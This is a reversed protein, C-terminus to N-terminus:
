ETVAQPLLSSHNRTGKCGKVYGFLFDGTAYSDNTTQGGLTDQPLFAKAHGDMFGTMIKNNHRDFGLTAQCYMGGWGLRLNFYGPLADVVEGSDAATLTAEKNRTDGCFITGAANELTDLNPNYLSRWRHCDQCAGYCRAGGIDLDGNVYTNYGPNRTTGTISTLISDTGWGRNCRIAINTWYSAHYFDSGQALFIANLDASPCIYMRPFQGERKGRLDVENKTGGLLPALCGLAWRTNAGTYDVSAVKYDAYNYPFCGWTTWYTTLAKCINSQSNLCYAQRAREKAASLTPLLISVLLALIAVVVLLEILTFGRGAANSPRPPKM